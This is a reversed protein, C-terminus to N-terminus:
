LVCLQNERVFGPVSSLLTLCESINIHWLDAPPIWFYMLGSQLRSTMYSTVPTLPQMNPTESRWGLQAAGLDAMWSGAPVKTQLNRCARHRSSYNDIWYMHLIHFFNNTVLNSPLLQRPTIRSTRLPHFRATDIMNWETIVELCVSTKLKFMDCFFFIFSAIASKSSQPCEILPWVMFVAAM